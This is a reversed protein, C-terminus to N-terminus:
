PMIYGTQASLSTLCWDVLRGVQLHHRLRHVTRVVEASHYAVLLSVVVAFAYTMRDDLLVLLNGVASLGRKPM